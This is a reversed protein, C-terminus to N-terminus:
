GFCDTCCQDYLKLMSFMNVNVLVNFHEFYTELQKPTFHHTVEIHFISPTKRLPHQHSHVYYLPPLLLSPINYGSSIHETYHAPIFPSKPTPQPVYPLSVHVTYVCPKPIFGSPFSTVQLISNFHDQYLFTNAPVPNM